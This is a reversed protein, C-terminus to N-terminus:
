NRDESLIKLWLISRSKRIRAFRNARLSGLLGDLESAGESTWGNPVSRKALYLAAQAHIQGRSEDIVSTLICSRGRINEHFIVKLVPTMKGDGVDSLVYHLEEKDIRM